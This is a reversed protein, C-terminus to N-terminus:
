ADGKAKAAIADVVADLEAGADPAVYTPRLNIIHFADGVICVKHRVIRYREADKRDGGDASLAARAQWGEWASQTDGHAYENPDDAERKFWDAEAPMAAAEYWAEFAEREDGGVNAPSTLSADQVGNSYATAAIHTILTEEGDRVNRLNFALSRARSAQADTLPGRIGGGVQQTEAAREGCEDNTCKFSAYVEALASPLAPYAATGWCEPYHIAQALDREGGNVPAADEAADEIARLACDELEQATAVMADPEDDPSTRDPLECVNQIFDPWWSPLAAEQGASQAAPTPAAALTVDWMEQNETCEYRANELAEAIAGSLFKPVLQWQSADFTVTKHDPM